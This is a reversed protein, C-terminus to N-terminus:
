PTQPDSTQPEVGGLPAGGVTTADPPTMETPPLPPMEGRVVQAKTMERNVEIAVVQEEPSMAPESVPPIIHASTAALSSGNNAGGPNGGYNGVRSGFATNFGNGGPNGGTAFAPMPIGSGGAAMPASGAPAGSLPIEQVLGHNNFTVVGKDKNIKLVAIDDKMEGETLMYSEEKGPAAKGSVKFLVELRGLIDTIGNPTIKVPPEANPPPANDQAVPPNLGFINREVAPTYPNVSMAVEQARAAAHLALAGALGLASKRLFIM